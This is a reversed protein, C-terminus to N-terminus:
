MGPNDMDVEEGSSYPGANPRVIGSSILPRGDDDSNISRVESSPSISQGVPMGDQIDTVQLGPIPPLKDEKIVPLSKEQPNPLTRSRSNSPLSLQHVPDSDSDNLVQPIIPM